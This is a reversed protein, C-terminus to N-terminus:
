DAIFGVRGKYAQPIPGGGSGYLKNLRGLLIAQPDHSEVFGDDPRQVQNPQMPKAIYPTATIMLETEERQYDRSRFLAGIIPLNMLGPLGNLSSKSIRQILGATALTGGSPLEVTTDSKRVRFAPANLGAQTSESLRFQNEFDLETVETAIRMSIKNDSLVIPTFNLTVGIPRYEITVQCTQRNFVDYSCTQGKPIPVEGGATFKASEGSIATVTPEALVRALGARELARLTFNNANGLGATIATASLAQPQIPLPNDISPTISFKGLKWEGSSNIGLQKIAKRSIESVTVKVMVQDRDRITLSNIVAGKGNSKDSLGVFANAIDVAQTAESANPVTGILLISDGAPKIEIQSNPLATRLTQRLVNLDRGVNIELATIQRGEGDMVFMSTAGDAIGIVFLKRATRVVANAVKPNAVFVEKADRPLEVVLSRGISLDLKRSIAHESVGVNLIPAPGSSPSQAHVSGAALLLALATAIHLPSQTM